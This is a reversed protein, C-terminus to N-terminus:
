DEQISQATASTSASQAQVEQQKLRKQEVDTVAKLGEKQLQVTRNYQREAINFNIKEAELDISDSTVKLETQRVKNRAQELKLGRERQLAGIQNSLATIKDKYSDVSRNKAERQQVTRNVLNPDQYETKIESIRLITDGKNVFDGERVYWQEIRGPIQSQITQPRQDPTLTTVFGNGTVNQTWPLFMIVFAAISFTILFRSFYRYHDPKHAKSFAEYKGLDVQKNVNNNSINLMDVPKILNPKWDQDNQRMQHAMCSKQEFGSADM